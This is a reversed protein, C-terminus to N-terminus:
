EPGLTARETAGFWLHPGPGISAYLQPGLSARNFACFWLHPSPGM